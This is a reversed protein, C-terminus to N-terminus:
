PVRGMAGTSVPSLRAAASIQHQNERHHKTDQSWRSGKGATLGHGGLDDIRGRLADRHLKGDREIARHEVELDPELLFEVLSASQGSRLLKRLKSVSPEGMGTPDM